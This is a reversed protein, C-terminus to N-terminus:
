SEMEVPTRYVHMLTDKRGPDDEPLVPDDPEDTLTPHPRDVFGLV